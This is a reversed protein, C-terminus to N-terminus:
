SQDGGRTPRWRWGPSAFPAQAPHRVARWGGGIVSDFAARMQAASREASLRGVGTGLGPAALHRLAGGAENRKLAAVLAARLALYANITGSIDGPVRMTPAAILVPFRPGGIELILAQGVPLEGYCAEAIAAILLPQAQGRYFDDIRADIGGGMDGFSNAPAVLADGELDFISGQYVSAAGVDAFAAALASAVGAARDCLSLRM